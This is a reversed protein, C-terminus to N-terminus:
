EELNHLLAVSLAALVTVGLTLALNLDAFVLMSLLLSVGMVALSIVIGLGLVMTTKPRPVTPRAPLLRGDFETEVVDVSDILAMRRKEHDAPSIQRRELREDLDRLEKLIATVIDVGEGVPPPALAIPASNPFLKIEQSM